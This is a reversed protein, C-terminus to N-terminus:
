PYKRAGDVDPLATPEEARCRGASGALSFLGCLITAAKAHKM